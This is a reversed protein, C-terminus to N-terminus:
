YYDNIYADDDIENVPHYEIPENTLDLHKQFAHIVFTFYIEVGISLLDILIYLINFKDIYCAVFLLLILVIQYIRWVKILLKNVKVFAYILLLEFVAGIICLIIFSLLIAIHLKFKTEIYFKILQASWIVLGNIAAVIGSEVLPICICFKKM